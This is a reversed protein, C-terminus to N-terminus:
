KDKWWGYFSYTEAGIQSHATDLIWDMIRAPSGNKLDNIAVIKM